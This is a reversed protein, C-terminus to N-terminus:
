YWERLNDKDLVDFLAWSISRSGKAPSRGAEKTRESVVYNEFSNNVNTGSLIGILGSNRWLLRADGGDRHLAALSELQHYKIGSGEDNEGRIVLSPHYDKTDKLEIGIFLGKITWGAIDFPAPGSPVFVPMRGKTGVPRMTPSLRFLFAGRNKRIWTFTDEIEIEFQNPM